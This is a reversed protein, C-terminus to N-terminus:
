PLSVLEALIWTFLVILGFRNMISLAGIILGAIALKKPQDVIIGIIGFLIAIGTIVWALISIPYVLQAMGAMVGFIELWSALIAFVMSIIGFVLAVIGFAKGMAKV